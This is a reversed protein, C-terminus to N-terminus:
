KGMNIPFTMMGISSTMNKLPTPVALWIHMRFFVLQFIGLRKNKFRWRDKLSLHIFPHISPHLNYRNSRLFGYIKMHEVYLSFAFAQLLKRCHSSKAGLKVAFCIWNMLLRGWWRVTRHRKWLSNLSNESAASSGEPLQCPLAAHSLGTVRNGKPLGLWPVDASQIPLDVFMRHSKEIAVRQYNWVKSNFVVM